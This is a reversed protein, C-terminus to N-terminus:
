RKQCIKSTMHFSFLTLKGATGAGMKPGWRLEFYGGGRSNESFDAMKGDGLIGRSDFVKAM